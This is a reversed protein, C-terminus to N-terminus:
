ELMEIVYINWESEPMFRFLLNIVHLRRVDLVHEGGIDIPTGNSYVTRCLGGAESNCELVLFSDEGRNKLCTAFTLGAVGAGLILCKM